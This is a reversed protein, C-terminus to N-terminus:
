GPVALPSATVGGIMYESKVPGNLVVVGSFVIM